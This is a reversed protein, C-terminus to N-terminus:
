KSEKASDTKHSARVLRNPSVRKFTAFLVIRKTFEGAGKWTFVSRRTNKAPKPGVRRRLKQPTM